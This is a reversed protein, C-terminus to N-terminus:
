RDLDKRYLNVWTLMLELIPMIFKPDNNTVLVVQKQIYQFSAKVNGKFTIEVAEGAEFRELTTTVNSLQAFPDHSGTDFIQCLEYLTRHRLKDDKMKQTEEDLSVAIVTKFLEWKKKLEKLTKM